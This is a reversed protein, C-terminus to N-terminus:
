LTLAPCPLADFVCVMRKRGPWRRVTCNSRVSQDFCARVPQWEDSRVGSAADVRVVRSRRACTTERRHASTSDRTECTSLWSIM